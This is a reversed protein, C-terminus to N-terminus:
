GVRAETPISIFVTTGAIGEFRFTGGLFNVRQRINSLGHGRSPADEPIGIGDDDYRFVLQEGQPFFRLSAHTADSHRDMNSMLEQTIRFLQRRAEKSIRDFGVCSFTVGVGSAEEYRHIMERLGAILEEPEEARVSLEHALIRLDRVAGHLTESARDPDTRIQLLALSLVQGLGDHLEKGIRDREREETAAIEKVLEKAAVIKSMRLTTEVQALAIVAILITSLVIVVGLMKRLTSSQRDLYSVLWHELLQPTMEHVDVGPLPAVHYVTAFADSGIFSDVLQLADDSKEGSLQVTAVYLAWTDDRAGYLRLIVGIGTAIGFVTIFMLFIAPSISSRTVM